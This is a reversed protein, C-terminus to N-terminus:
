VQLFIDAVVNNVNLDKEFLLWSNYWVTSRPSTLPILLLYWLVAVQSSLFQLLFFFFSCGVLWFVRHLAAFCFMFVFWVLFGWVMVVVWWGVPQLWVLFLYRGSGVLLLVSCNWLQWAKSASRLLLKGFATGQCGATRRKQFSIEPPFGMGTGMLSGNHSPLHSLAGCMSDTCWIIIRHLPLCSQNM